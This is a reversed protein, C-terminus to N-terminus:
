VYATVEELCDLFHTINLKETVSDKFRGGREAAMGIVTYLQKIPIDNLAQAAEDIDDDSFVSLQELVKKADETRLLPVSYAVSFAKRLGVSKLFTLESTTGLVLLKSREPPTKGLFKLLTHTTENSFRPGIETYHLLREINDLIVISLPSKYADEFVKTIHACRQSEHPGNLTEASVIKVYPFESDIGITAALATKGSGSPGHLLCTVPPGGRGKAKVREVLFMVSEYILRQRDGCDVFGNPRSVELDKTSAGFATKVESLAHLFDEMTVKINEEDVPKSLDERNLNRNLAYSMASKVVGELEAGSYNKTRAALEQRNVDPALFSNEKMMKTHIQLIELRGAEDPLGIEIHVELRGPRLLAEDLMDMRNTMGILLINDLAEVGDIKTLLQNVISDHVGTGDRSSGRAKCIADIEDFIIVHLDSAEGLSRQDNEADAFLDRVNKETEGVFKSLVEPGNVIKPEKRNLMKGIQRALLTKGTGPPGYLLVGKVHKGGLRNWTHPPFVRSAFARRFINVFEQKLGGIGLSELNFEKEKFIKSTAADRQNMIKIGTANSAEFVIYTDECIMGREIGNSLNDAETVARSVTFVYNTGHYEFTARQGVTLVQAIFKRKLQTSLQVADVEENKTKTGKKVFELELSLLTLDFNEPPVFRTVTVTDDTSVRAHWGSFFSCDVLGSELEVGYCILIGENTYNLFPYSLSLIFVDAVNALFLDATGPVAFQRLNASSCYAFNTFALHTEPTSTVTMTRVTTSEM